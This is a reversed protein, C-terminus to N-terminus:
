QERISRNCYYERMDNVIDHYIVIGRESEAKIVRKYFDAKADDEFYKCIHFETFPYKGRIFHAADIYQEIGKATM